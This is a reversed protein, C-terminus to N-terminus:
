PQSTFLNGDVTLLSAHIGGCAVKKVPADIPIQKPTGELHRVEHNWDGALTGLQGKYPDGWSYATGDDCVCMTFNHKEGKSCSVQQVRLNSNSFFTVETPSKISKANSGTGTQQFTNDGWSFLRGDEAVVM